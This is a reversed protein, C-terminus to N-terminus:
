SIKKRSSTRIIRSNFIPSECCIHKRFRLHLKHQICGISEFSGKLVTVGKIEQIKWDCIICDKSFQNIFTDKIIVHCKAINVNDKFVITFDYTRMGKTFIENM